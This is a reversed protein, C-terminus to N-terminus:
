SKREKRISINLTEERKDILEQKELLVSVKAALDGDKSIKKM